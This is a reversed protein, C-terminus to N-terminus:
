RVPERRPMGDVEDIATRLHDAASARNVSVVDSWADPESGVRVVRRRYRLTDTEPHTLVAHRRLADVTACMRELGEPCLECRLEVRSEEERTPGGGVGEAVSRAAQVAAEQALRRNPEHGSTLHGSLVEDRSRAYVDWAWDDRELDYTVAMWRGDVEGLFGLSPSNDSLARDWSWEVSAGSADQTEPPPPAPTQPVPAEEITRRSRLLEDRLELARATEERTLDRSDEYATLYRHGAGSEDPHLDALHEVLEGWGTLEPWPGPEEAHAPHWCTFTPRDELADRLEAASREAAVTSETLRRMTETLSDIVVTMGTEVLEDIVVADIEQGRIEALRPADVTISGAPLFDLRTEERRSGFTWFSRTPPHEHGLRGCEPCTANQSEPNFPRHRTCCPTEADAHDHDFTCGREEARARIEEEVACEPPCRWPGPVYTAHIPSEGTEVASRQAPRGHDCTPWEPLLPV